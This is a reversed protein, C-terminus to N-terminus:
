RTKEAGEPHIGQSVQPLQNPDGLLVISKASGGMSVVNALSMQGAEDVFLVDLGDEMEARAFLWPTGGAVDYRRGALGSEVEGNDTTVSVGDARAADEGRDCKQVIRVTQGAGEAAAAVADILNSIARHSQATVGVRRGVRVLEVIM